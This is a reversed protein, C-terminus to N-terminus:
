YDLNAKFLDVGMPPSWSTGRLSLLNGFEQTYFAVVLELNVVVVQRFNEATRPVVDARLTMEIRGIKAGEVAIDFFTIPQPPLWHWLFM